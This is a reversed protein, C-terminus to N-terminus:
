DDYDDHMHRKSRLYDDDESEEELMKGVMKAHEQKVRKIYDCKKRQSIYGNGYLHLNMRAIIQSLAETVSRHCGIKELSSHVKRIQSLVNTLASFAVTKTNFGNEALIKQIDGHEFFDVVYSNLENNDDIDVYPVISRDLIINDNLTNILQNVDRFHDINGSLAAFSSVSTYKIRNNHLIYIIDNTQKTQTQLVETETPKSIIPIEKEWDELDEDDEQQIMQQKFIPASTTNNSDNEQKTSRGKKSLPLSEERIYNIYASSYTNVYEEFIDKATKNFDKMLKVLEVSPAKLTKVVKGKKFIRRCGFIQAFVELIQKLTNDTFKVKEELEDIRNILEQIEKQLSIAVKHDQKQNATKKKQKLVKIDQEIKDQEALVLKIDEWEDELIPELMNQKLIEAILYNSPETYYLNSIFGAYKLPQGKQGLYHLRRMLEISFRVQHRMQEESNKVRGGHRFLPQQLVRVCSNTLYEVSKPDNQIGFWYLM